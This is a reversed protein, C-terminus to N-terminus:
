CENDYISLQKVQKAISQIERSHDQVTPSGKLTAKWKYGQRGSSLTKKETRYILGMDSMEKLRKWVRQEKERIALAIDEYTGEGIQSLGWLIKKYIDRLSETDLSRYADISTSPNKRKSM